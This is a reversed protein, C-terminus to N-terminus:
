RDVVYSFVSELSEDLPEVRFLRIGLNRALQPVSQQLIAVQSSLVVMTGDPAVAVSDVVDSQILASALTRPNDAVIRIRYPRKDLKERIARLNGSAALKGSVMLVLREALTEVEELIHSSILITCGKDALCKLLNQTELRQRPDMGNLPEDLLLVEPEHVLAAAMRIRQRMGRSYTGVDQNRADTLGVAEIARDVPPGTPNLGYLQAALEVLQRGTYFGYATEHEPLVGIRRYISPNGRVPEDFLKVQGASPNSLGAIMRLLTTKGSGNPGLLGTIGPYVQVSVDNVAVFSDFWKSIGQLEITPDKMAPERVNDSITM